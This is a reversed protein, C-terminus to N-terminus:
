TIDSVDPDNRGMVWDNGRQLGIMDSGANCKDSVRGGLQFRGIM